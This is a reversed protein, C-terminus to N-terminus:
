VAGYKDLAERLDKKVYEYLQPSKEKSIHAKKGFRRIFPVIDKYNLIDAELRCSRESLPTVTGIPIYKEIIEAKEDFDVTVNMINGESLWIHEIFKQYENRIRIKKEDDIKGEADDIIKVQFIDDLRFVKIKDAKYSWAILYGRGNYFEYMIKFPLCCIESSQFSDNNSSKEEQSRSKLKGLELKRVYFSIDKKNKIAEFISYVANDNLIRDINNYNFIVNTDKSVQAASSIKLYDNIRDCAFFGPISYPSKGNFFMLASYLQSLEADSFGSNNKRLLFLTEKEANEGFYNRLNNKNKININKENPYLLKYTYKIYDTIQSEMAKMIKLRYINTLGTIEDDFRDPSIFLQKKGKDSQSVKNRTSKIRDELITELTNCESRYKAQSNILSDNIKKRIDPNDFDVNSFCGYIYLIRAAEAVKDFNYTLINKNNQKDKM